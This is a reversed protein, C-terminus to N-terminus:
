RTRNADRYPALRDADAAISIVKRNMDIRLRGDASEFVGDPLAKRQTTIGTGRDM